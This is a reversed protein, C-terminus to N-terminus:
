AGAELTRGTAKAWDAPGGDLVALDDHGARQLLSAATMAREGHGCAVVAGAPAEGAHGTLDGLEIHIADAIHGTVHEARQRIDLVPRDAIRDATLLDITQQKGGDAQWATWDLHGAPREYGIKLAQWTLEALDQDPATVFM